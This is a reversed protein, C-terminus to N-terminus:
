NRDSEEEKVSKRVEKARWRRQVREEVCKGCMYVSNKWPFKNFDNNEKGKQKQKAFNEVYM